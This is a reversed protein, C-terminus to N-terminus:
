IIDNKKEIKGSLVVNKKKRFICTRSSRISGLSPQETGPLEMLEGVLLLALNQFNSTLLIERVYIGFM